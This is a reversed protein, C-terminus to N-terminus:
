PCLTRALASGAPRCGGPRAQQLRDAARCSGVVKVALAVLAPCAGLDLVDQPVASAAAKHRPRAVARGCMGVM